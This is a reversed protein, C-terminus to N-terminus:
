PIATLLAGEGPSSEVYLSMLQRSRKDIRYMEPTDGMRASIVWCDRGDIQESGIVRDFCPISDLPSFPPDARSGQQGAEWRGRKSVKGYWM